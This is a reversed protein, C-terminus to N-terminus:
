LSERALPKAESGAVSAAAFSARASRPAPMAIRVAGASRGAGAPAAGRAVTREGVM